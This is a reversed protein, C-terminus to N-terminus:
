VVVLLGNRHQGLKLLQQKTDNSFNNNEVCLWHLKPTRQALALLADAGIDGIGCGVLGIQRLTSPLNKALIVAGKDRLNPNYSMSFSHLEPGGKGDIAKISESIRKIDDSKLDANRLHLDYSSQNGKLALLRAAARECVSDNTSRLASILPNFIMSPKEEAMVNNTFVSLSSTLSLVAVSGMKIFDRRSQNKM